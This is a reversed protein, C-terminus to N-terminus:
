SVQQGSGDRESQVITLRSSVGYAAEGAFGSFGALPTSATAMAAGVLGMFERRRVKM